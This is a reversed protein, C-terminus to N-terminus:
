SGARTAARANLDAQRRRIDDPWQAKIFALVSWIEDDSLAGEYVPMDTAVPQGIMAALGYKTLDFLTQDDHHWTHGSADHPPAPLRGDPKRQRWNPQGELDAGHCSACYDAYIRRGSEVMRADSADARATAVTEPPTLVTYAVAACAAALALGAAVAKSRNTL